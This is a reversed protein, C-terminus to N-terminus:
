CNDQRSPNTRPDEGPGTVRLTITRQSPADREQDDLRPIHSAAPSQTLARGGDSSRDAHPWSRAAHRQELPLSRESAPPSPQLAARNRWRHPRARANSEVQAHQVRHLRAGTKRRRRGAGARPHFIILRSSMAPQRKRSGATNAFVAPSNVCASAPRPRAGRGLTEPWLYHGSNMSCTGCVMPADKSEDM